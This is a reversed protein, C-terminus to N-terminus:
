RDIILRYGIVVPIVGFLVALLIAGMSRTIFCDWISDYKLGFGDLNNIWRNACNDYQLKIMFFTICLGLLVLSIGSILMIRRLTKPSFLRRSM